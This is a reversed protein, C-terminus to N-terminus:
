HLKKSCLTNWPTHVIDTLFSTTKCVEGESLRADVHFGNVKVQWDRTPKACSSTFANWCGLIHNQQKRSTAFILLNSWFETLNIYVNSFLVMKYRFSWWNPQKIFLNWKAPPNYKQLVRIVDFSTLVFFYVVQLQLRVRKSTRRANSCANKKRQSMVDNIRSRRLHLNLAFQLSWFAPNETDM